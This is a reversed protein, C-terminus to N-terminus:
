HTDLTSRAYVRRLGIWENAWHYTTEIAKRGGIGMRQALIRIRWLGSSQGPSRRRIVHDVTLGCQARSVIEKWLPFDSAVVPVGAAMYEFMKVPLSNLYNPTPQLVVIGVRASSLDAVVQGRTRRGLFSVTSGTAAKRASRDLDRSEPPGAIRLAIGSGSDGLLRAARIMEFCGRTASVGGVYYAVRPRKGFPTSSPAPFEDLTPYNCVVTAPTRRYPLRQRIHPTAAVVRTAAWCM